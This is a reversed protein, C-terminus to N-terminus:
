EEILQKVATALALLNEKSAKELSDLGELGLLEAIEAVLEAKTASKRQSAPKAEAVYVGEKVLKAIISRKSLAFEAALAATDAKGTEAIQASYASLLAATTEPTYNSM